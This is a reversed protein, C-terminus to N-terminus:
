AIETKQLASAAQILELLLYVVSSHIKPTKQIDFVKITVKLHITICHHM